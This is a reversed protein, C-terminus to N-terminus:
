GSTAEQRKNDLLARTALHIAETSTHRPKWGLDLVKKTDLYVKPQDGPWGRDGGTYKIRADQLGMENKVIQAISSVKTITDAGLNYIDCQSTSTSIVHCM